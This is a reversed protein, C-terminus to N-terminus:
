IIKQLHFFLLLHSLFILICGVTDLYRNSTGIEDGWIPVGKQEFGRICLIPVRSQPVSTGIEDVM